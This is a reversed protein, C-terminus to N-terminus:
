GCGVVSISFVLRVPAYPNARDRGFRAPALLRCIHLRPKDQAKSWLSIKKLRAKGRPLDAPSISGGGRMVPPTTRGALPKCSRKRANQGTGVSLGSPRSDTRDPSRRQPPATLLRQRMAQKPCECTLGVDRPAGVSLRRANTPKKRAYIQNPHIGYASALGAVTRGGKVAALAVKAKFAAGHKRGTRKM